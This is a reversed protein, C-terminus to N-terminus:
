YYYSYPTYLNNYHYNRYVVPNYTRYYPSTYHTRYAVPNYHYGLSRYYLAPDAEAERKAIHVAGPNEAHYQGKAAYMDESPRDNSLTKEAVKVPVTAPMYYPTYVYPMQHTYTLPMHHTYTIPAVVPKEVEEKEAEVEVEKKEEVKPLTYVYPMTNYAYHSYTIPVQHHTYTTPVVWQPDACAAAFCLAILLLKM